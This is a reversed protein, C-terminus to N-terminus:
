DMEKEGMKSVPIGTMQSVVATIEDEDVVTKNEDIKNRWSKVKEDLEQQTQREQDRYNAADEFKQEKIAKNKKNEFDSIKEEMIKFESTSENNFNESQEAEDIM